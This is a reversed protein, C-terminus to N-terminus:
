AIEILYKITCQNKDYVIYENNRLSSGSKAFFSDYKGLKQLGDWDLRCHSSRHEDTEYEKGTNVDYLALFGQSASGRAWYSGRTSTYGISKQAKDAMYIGNGFMAGTIVVGSPRILLGTKVINLWNENRSGHWLLKKKKSYSTKLRDKFKSQTALNSVVYASKFRNASNGMLEKIKDIDKASALKMDIGLAKALTISEETNTSLSVQQAMVDLLSQEKEIISNAKKIDVCDGKLLFDQVKNMKRPITTYLSTCMDNFDEVRKKTLATHKMAYAAMEDISKQATDVQIQTVGGAGVTYNSKIAGKSYGQLVNLINQCSSCKLDEFKVTVTGVKLNSVDKYPTSRSARTKSRIISDWKSIPYVKSDESGGVRGWKALFTGDAKEEMKYYKNNNNKTVCVLEAMRM